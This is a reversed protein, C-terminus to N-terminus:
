IFVVKEKESERLDELEKLGECIELKMDTIEVLCEYDDINELNEPSEAITMLKGYCTGSAVLDNFGNFIEFDFQYSDNETDVSDTAGCPFCISLKKNWLRERKLIYIINQEITEFKKHWKGKQFKFCEFIDYLEFDYLIQSSL